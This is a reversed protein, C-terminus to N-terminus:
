ESFVSSHFSAGTADTHFICVYLMLLADLAIYFMYFVEPVIHLMLRSVAALAKLADFAPEALFAAHDPHGTVGAVVSRAAGSQM